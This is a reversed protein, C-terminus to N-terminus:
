PTSDWTGSDGSTADRPATTGAARENEDIFLPAAREAVSGTSMVPM